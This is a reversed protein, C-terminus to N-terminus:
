GQLDRKRFSISGIITLILAIVTLVVLALWDIEELPYNSIYSFVSGKEVWDPFNMMGGLYVVFFSYGLYAWAITTGGPLLGYLLIGLGLVVWMAPLHNLGAILFDSFPLEGNSTQVGAAGMGVAALTMMIISVLWAIGAYSIFLKQRSLKTSLMSELRNKKEEGKLKFMAMLVPVTCFISVIVMLMGLFQASLATGDTPQLFQEMVEIQEVYTEIEGFVSGYTAGYIFLGIGWAILGVRQMHLGFGFTNLIRKKAHIKGPRDPLFGAGVDRIVHLYFALLSLIVAIAFTMGLVWWNNDVFIRAEQVWGFPSLWSLPEHSVDGIARIFYSAGLVIFSLGITGRATSSLQAFLLAISSFILGSAGLAAGYTFSGSTTFSEVPLVSLGVGTIVALLIYVGVMVLVVSTLGALRGTPLARVMETRGEEEDGRTYRAVLLIAMVGIILATMMLMEHSFMVATTYNDLGYGKGVLATVAPNDMTAAVQQREEQSSYIGDFASATGISALSIALIWVALRVRDRRIILKSLKFTNLFLQQNM